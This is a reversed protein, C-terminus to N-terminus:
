RALLGGLLLGGVGAAVIWWASTGSQGTAKIDLPIERRIDRYGGDYMPVRMLYGLTYMDGTNLMYEISSKELGDLLARYEWAMLAASLNTSTSAAALPVALFILLICAVIKM